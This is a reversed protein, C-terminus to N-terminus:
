RPSRSVAQQWRAVAAALQDPLGTTPATALDTAPDATPDAGAGYRRALEALEDAAGGRREWGVTNMGHVRAPNGFAKAFPPVHRTVVSGMGVMVGAGLVTFQHVTSNMGVTAGDGVLSHGGLLVAPSLTVRDGVQVDHGVHSKTMLFCDAGVRTTVATGAHVTVHERLVTRAGVVVGPGDVTLWDPGHPHGPVEPLTGVAVSPGIWTGDGIETRGALVAFPGVVVGAGLVVHPGVVATPHVTTAPSREGPTSM